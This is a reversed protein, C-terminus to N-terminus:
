CSAVMPGLARSVVNWSGHCNPGIVPGASSWLLYALLVGNVERPEWLNDFVDWFTRPTM